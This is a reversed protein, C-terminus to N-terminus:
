CGLDDLLGVDPPARKEATSPGLQLSVSGGCDVAAVCCGQRSTVFLSCQIKGIDLEGLRRKRGKPNVNSCRLKVCGEVHHM